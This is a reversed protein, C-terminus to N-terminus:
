SLVFVPSSSSDITLTCGSGIYLMGMDVSALREGTTADYLLAHTVTAHSGMTWSPVNAFSVTAGTAASSYTTTLAIPHGGRQYGRATVERTAQSYNDVSAANTLSTHLSLRWTGSDLGGSAVRALAASNNVQWPQTRSRTPGQRRWWENNDQDTGFIGLCDWTPLAHWLDGCRECFRNSEASANAILSLLFRTDPDDPDFRSM